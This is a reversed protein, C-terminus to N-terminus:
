LCGRARAGSSDGPRRSGRDRTRPPRRSPFTPSTAPRSSCRSRPESLLRRSMPGQVASGARAGGSATETAALCAYPSTKRRSRRNREGSRTRARHTSNWSWPLAPPVPRRRRERRFLQRFPGMRGRRADFKAPLAAKASDANRTSTRGAGRLENFM